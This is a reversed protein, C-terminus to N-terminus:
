TEVGLRSRFANWTERKETQHWIELGPFYDAVVAALAFASTSIDACKHSTNM